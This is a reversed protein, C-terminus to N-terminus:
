KKSWVGQSLNFGQHEKEDPQYTPLVGKDQQSHYDKTIKVVVKSLMFLATVNVVTMLGTSLDALAIVEPLTAVSGFVLMFLFGIRLFWKGLRNDMKLYKLNNDAYAFNAVISTFAFLLIAITIFDSGWAGVQHALAQQTLQIGEAQSASDHFLLILIATCSCIVITDFFVALMQMYGQSVPHPPFPVAAAAANPASGMGAENSYLGRKVGQVIAAGVLGSGAEKLGFASSFIDSIIMPVKSLNMGIVGICVFIYLLGMFPVTLEAFRAINKLGGFIILAAAITIVIGTYLPNFGYSGNFASTISNAQVASFVFGYGFFLCLSFTVALKKNNLGKSMYYAPGGRFNGMSDREKYLQGLTSEAFATAMGVFAILWMWFVAGAGGLSIAVAVGMLNGTGVRAALSTCLAQFSSIGHSSRKRSSKLISFMHFFRTIQLGKLRFTFWIGCASLLYILISGWLYGNITGVWLEIISPEIVDAAM